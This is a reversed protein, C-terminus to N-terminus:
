IKNREGAARPPARRSLCKKCTVKEEMAAMKRDCEEHDLVFQERAKLRETLIANSSELAAIRAQSQHAIHTLDPESLLDGVRETIM